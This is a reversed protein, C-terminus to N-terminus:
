ENSAELNKRKASAATGLLSQIYARLFEADEVTTMGTEVRKIIEELM